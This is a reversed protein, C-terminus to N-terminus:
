HGDRHVRLSEPADVSTIEPADPSFRVGINGSSAADITIPEEFAIRYVSNTTEVFAILRSPTVLIRQVRSTLTFRVAEGDVAFIEMSQGVRPLAIM